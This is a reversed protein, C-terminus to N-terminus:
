ARRPGRTVDTWRRLALLTILGVALLSLTRPEPIPPNAPLFTTTGDLRVIEGSYAAGTLDGLMDIHGFPAYITGVWSGGIPVTWMGHTESFVNAATGGTLSIEMGTAFAADGVVFIALDGGSLDLNLKLGVAPEIADFFYRGSSLNLTNNLGPRLTGYTGPMLMTTEGMVPDVDTGGATFPTVPPLPVPVFVQPTGNETETGGITTGLGRTITGSATVDGAVSSGLSLSVDAGSDVSGLVSASLGLTVNGNAIVDGSVQASQGMDFGLGARVGWLTAGGGTTVWGTSGVLGDAVSAGLVIETGVEGYAVFDLISLAFAPRTLLVLLGILCV